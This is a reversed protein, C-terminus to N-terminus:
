SNLIWPTERQLLLYGRLLREAGNGRAPPLGNRLRLIKPVNNSIVLVNDPKLDLHAIPASTPTSHRCVFM